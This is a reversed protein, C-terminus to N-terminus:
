IWLWLFKRGLDAGRSCDQRCRCDVHSMETLANKREEVGVLFSAEGVLSFVDM